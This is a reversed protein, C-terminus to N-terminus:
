DHTYSAFIRILGKTHELGAIDVSRHVANQVAPSSLRLRNVVLKGRVRGKAANAATWDVKRALVVEAWDDVVNQLHIRVLGLLEIVASVRGEVVRGLEPLQVHTLQQYNLKTHRRTQLVSPAFCRVVAAVVVVHPLVQQRQLELALGLVHLVASCQRPTDRHIADCLPLRSIQRGRWNTTPHPTPSPPTVIIITSAISITVIIAIHWLSCYFRVAELTALALAVQLCLVPVRPLLVKGVLLWYHLALLLWYHLLLLWCHLLLLLLLLLLRVVM